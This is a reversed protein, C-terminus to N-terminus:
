LKTYKYRTVKDQADFILETKTLETINAELACDSKSMLQGHSINFSGTCLGDNSWSKTFNGSNKFELIEGSTAKSWMFETLHKTESCVHTSMGGIETLQWKGVILANYDAVNSKNITSDLNLSLDDNNPKVCSSVALALLLLFLPFKKM